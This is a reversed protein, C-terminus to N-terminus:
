KRAWFLGCTLGHDEFDERVDEDDIMIPVNKTGSDHKVVIGGKRLIQAAMKLCDRRREGDVFVFDFPQGKVWNLADSVYNGHIPRPLIIANPPLHPTLIKVYGALHEVSIWEANPFFRPFFVTSWGSGWEFCKRPKLRELVDLITITQRDGIYPAYFISDSPPGLDKYKHSHWITRVKLKEM